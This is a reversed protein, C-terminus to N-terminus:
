NNALYELLWTANERGHYKEIIKFAQKGLENQRLFDDKTCSYDIKSKEVEYWKQGYELENSSYNHKGDAYFELNIRKNSFSFELSERGFITTICLRQRVFTEFEIM